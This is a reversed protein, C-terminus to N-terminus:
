LIDNPDNDDHSRRADMPSIPGSTADSLKVTIDKYMSLVTEMNQHHTQLHLKVCLRKEAAVPFRLLWLASNPVYKLINCRSCVLEVLEIALAQATSWNLDTRTVVM